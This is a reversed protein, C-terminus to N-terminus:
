AVEKKNDLKKTGSLFVLWNAVSELQEETHESDSYKEWVCGYGSDEIQDKAFSVIQNYTYKKNLLKQLKDQYVSCELIALAALERSTFGGKIKITIYELMQGNKAKKIAM